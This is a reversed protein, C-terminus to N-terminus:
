CAQSAVIGNRKGKEPTPVSTRLCLCFSENLTLTLTACAMGFAEDSPQINSSAVQCMLSWGEM